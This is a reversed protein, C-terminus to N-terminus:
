DTCALGERNRVEDPDKCLCVRAKDSAGRSVILADKDVWREEGRRIQLDSRELQGGNFRQEKM